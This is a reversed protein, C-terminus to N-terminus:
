ENSRKKILYPFERPTSANEPLLPPIDPFNPPLINPPPLISPKAEKDEKKTETIFTVGIDEVPTSELEKLSPATQAPDLIWLINNDKAWSIMRRVPVIMNFQEGAGRVLMGMYRGDELYVGGGSSGPFATVSTQDLEFKSEPIIRGIQSVIGATMSNAGSTGLLSGVHFLKTGIPPIEKDLYFNASSQNYGTKRVILIALDQGTDADSYKFVRTLMRIEGVRRGNSVIERLIEPDKFEVVTKSTGTKPDIVSRTSRLNKIVHAATWILSVDENDIKRTVIVGSGEAGSAVITVSINQLHDAINKQTESVAPVGTPTTQALISFPFFVAAVFIMLKM